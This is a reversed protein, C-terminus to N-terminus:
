EVECNCDGTGFSYGAPTGCVPCKPSQERRLRHYEVRTVGWLKYEAGWFKPSGQGFKNKPHRTYVSGLTDINPTM